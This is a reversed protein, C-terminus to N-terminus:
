EAGVTKDLKTRLANIVSNVMIKNPPSMITEDVVDLITSGVLSRSNYLAQTLLVPFIDNLYPKNIITNEIMILVPNLISSGNKMMYLYSANTMKKAVEGSTKDLQKMTMEVLKNSYKDYIESAHAAMESDTAKERGLISNKADGATSKVSSASSTINDRIDRLTNGVKGAGSAAIGKVKDSANRATNALAKWIGDGGISRKNRVSRSQTKSSILSKRTGRRTGRRSMKRTGGRIAATPFWESYPPKYLMRILRDVFKHKTDGPKYVSEFIKLMANPTLEEFSKMASFAYLLLDGSTAKRLTISVSQELISNIKERFDEKQLIKLMQEQLNTSLTDTLPAGKVIASCIDDVVRKSVMSYITNLDTNTLTQKPVIQTNSAM